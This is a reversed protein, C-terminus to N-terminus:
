IGLIEATNRTARHAGVSEVAYVAMPRGSSLQRIAFPEDALHVLGQKPLTAGIRLMASRITGPLTSAVVDGNVVVAVPVRLLTALKTAYGDDVADAMYIHGLAPNTAGVPLGSVLFLASPRRVLADIGPLEDPTGSALVYSDPLWAARRAGASAVILGDPAAAVLADVALRSALRDLERQLAARDAADTARFGAIAATLGPHEALANLKILSEEQRHREIEAFIRETADLTDIAAGEVRRSAEMSLVVFVVVLVLAIAASTAILTRVVLRPPNSRGFPLKLAM